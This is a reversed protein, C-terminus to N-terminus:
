NQAEQLQDMKYQVSVAVMKYRKGESLFKLVEREKPTLIKEENAPLFYELITLLAWNLHGLM